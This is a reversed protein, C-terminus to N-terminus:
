EIIEHTFRDRNKWYPCFPCKEGAPYDLGEEHPCGIIGDTAVIQVVQQERLFALIEKQIRPDERVDTSGSVWKKMPEPEADPRPIIGVVVKSARQDDPGYFAITAGPFKPKSKEAKM